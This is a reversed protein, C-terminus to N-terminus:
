RVSSGARTSNRKGAGEIRHGCHGAVCAGCLAICYLCCQSEVSPLRGGAVVGGGCCVSDPKVGKRGGFLAEYVAPADRRRSRMEFCAHLLMNADVADLAGRRGALVDDIVAAVGQPSNMQMHTLMSQVRKEVDWSRLGMQRMMQLLAQVSAKDDAEVAHALLATMIQGNPHRSTDEPPQSRMWELVQMADGFRDTRLMGAIIFGLLQTTLVRPNHELAAAFVRATDGPCEHALLAQLLVRTIGREAKSHRMLLEWTQLAGDLAADAHRAARGGKSAMSAASASAAAVASTSSHSPLSQLVSIVVSSAARATAKVLTAEGKRLVSQAAADVDQASGGAAATARGASAAAAQLSNRQEQFVRLAEFPRQTACLRQMYAGWAAFVSHSTGCGSRLCERLAAVELMNLTTTGQRPLHEYAVSLHTPTFGQPLAEGLLRVVPMASTGKHSSCARLMCRVLVAEDNADGVAMAVAAAVAEQADELSDKSAALTAYQAVVQQIATLHALWAGSTRLTSGSPPAAKTMWPQVLTAIHKAAALDAESCAQRMLSPLLQNDEEALVYQTSAPAKAHHAVREALADRWPQQHNSAPQHATAATTATTAAAAQHGTISHFCPANHPRYLPTLQKPLRQSARCTRMVHRAVAHVALRHMYLCHLSAM